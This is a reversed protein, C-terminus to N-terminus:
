IWMWQRYEVLGLLVQKDRENIDAEIRNTDGYLQEHTMQKRVATPMDSAAKLAENYRAQMEGRQKTIYEYSEKLWVGAAFVTPRDVDDWVVSDMEIEVFEKIIAFNVLLVLETSDIWKNPIACRVQQHCPDFWRYISWSTDYLWVHTRDWAQEYWPYKENKIREFFDHVDGMPVIESTNVNGLSKLTETLSRKKTWPWNRM